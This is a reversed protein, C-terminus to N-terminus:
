PLRGIEEDLLAFQERRTIKELPDDASAVEALQGTAFRASRTRAKRAVRSAVGYLWSGLSARKRISGARRLLVLFTAQFALDADALRSLCSVLPHLPSSKMM